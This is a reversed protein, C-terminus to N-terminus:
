IGEEERCRRVLESSRKRPDDITEYFEDLYRLTERVYRDDLGRPDQYLAYIAAKRDRFTDLVARWHEDTLCRGRYVRDRVSGLRLRADPVAYRANVIGTWDFDYAVPHYVTRDREVLLEMNHLGALSWDTAGILYLFVGVLGLQLSDVDEFRAGRVDLLASGNRAAMGDADELLFTQVTLSDARGTTDVYTTSALRARLSLPTLVGYMQYVLYERVVYQEYDRRSPRCPTVLKLKDEGAFPTGGTKGKPVNLMLPPFDCNRKQRRWHGRTRLKVEMSAPAADGLQYTLVFPHYTAEVSDRDNLLARLDGALRMRLPAESEFLAAAGGASQGRAPAGALALAVGAAVLM